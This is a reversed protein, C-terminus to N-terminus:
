PRWTWRSEPPSPPSSNRPTAAVSPPVASPVNSVRAHRRSLVGVGAVASAVAVAGVAAVGVSSLRLGGGGATSSTSSGDLQVPFEYLLYTGAAYEWLHVNAAGSPLSAPVTTSWCFEGGSLNTVTVPPASYTTFPSDTSFHASFTRGTVPGSLCIPYSGGLPVSAPPNNAVTATEAPAISVRNSAPGNTVVGDPTAISWSWQIGVSHTGVPWSAQVAFGQSALSAPTTPSFQTTSTLRTSSNESPTVQGGPSVTLNASPIYVHIPGSAGPFVAVASPVHIQGAPGNPFGPVVLQYSATLRSGVPFSGPPTSDNVYFDGNNVLPPAGGSGHPLERLAEIGSPRSAPAPHLVPVFLALLAVLTFSLVISTRGAGDSWGRGLRRAMEQDM